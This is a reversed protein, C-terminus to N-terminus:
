FEGLVVTQKESLLGKFFSVKVKKEDGRIVFRNTVRTGATLDSVPALVFLVAEGTGYDQGVVPQGDVLTSFYASVEITIERYKAGWSYTKWEEKVGVVKLDGFELTSEMQICSGPIGCDINQNAFAPAAFSLGVFLIALNFKM